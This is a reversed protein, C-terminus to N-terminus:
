IAGVAIESILLRLFSMATGLKMEDPAGFEIQVNWITDAHRASKVRLQCEPM